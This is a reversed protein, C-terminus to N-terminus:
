RLAIAESGHGLNQLHSIHGNAYISQHLKYKPEHGCTSLPPRVHPALKATSLHRSVKGSTATEGEKLTFRCM